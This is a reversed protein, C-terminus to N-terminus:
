NIKSKSKLVSLDKGKRIHKHDHRSRYAESNM